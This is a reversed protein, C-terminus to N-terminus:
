SSCPSSPSYPSNCNGSKSRIDDVIRWNMVPMRLPTRAGWHRTRETRYRGDSSPSTATSARAERPADPLSTPTPSSHGIQVGTEHLRVLGPNPDPPYPGSRVGARLWTYFHGRCAGPACCRYTGLPIRVLNVAETRAGPAPLGSTFTVSGFFEGELERVFTYRSKPPLTVEPSEGVFPCRLRITGPRLEQVVRARM